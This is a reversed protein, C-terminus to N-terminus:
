DGREGNKDEQVRYTSVILILYPLYGLKKKSKLKDDDQDLETQWQVYFFQALVWISAQIVISIRFILNCDISKKCVNWSYIIYLFYNWYFSSPKWKLALVCFILNFCSCHIEFNRSLLCMFVFLYVFNNYIELCWSFLFLM